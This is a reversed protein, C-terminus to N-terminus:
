KPPKSPRVEVRSILTRPPMTLLMRVIEAVDEPWIKWDAGSATVGGSFGTAVSGPMIYSVRVNESRVDQMLAESFGNLGSKSAIYAAGGAFASKGALSSINVIYGGGSTAFRFLAERSCYFVGSLNTEITLRWEDLAMERVHRFVGVGANNILVDLGGLTEDAFRFLAAVDEHKRVDAAVAAVKGQTEAHLESAAAEASERNRGCLVVAAGESLLMKALARGIGRTGGTVLCKKGTLSQNAM